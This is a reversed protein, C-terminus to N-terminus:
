DDDSHRTRVGNPIVKGIVQGQSDYVTGGSVPNLEVKGYVRNDQDVMNLTRTLSGTQQAPQAVVVTEKTKESSCASLAGLAAILLTMKRVFFM